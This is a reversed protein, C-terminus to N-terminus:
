WGANDMAEEAKRMASDWAERDKWGYDQANQWRVEPSMAWAWVRAFEELTKKESDDANNILNAWIGNNSHGYFGPGYNLRASDVEQKIAESLSIRESSIKTSTFQTFQPLSHIVSIANKSRESLGSKYQERLHNIGQQLKTYTNQKSVQKGARDPHYTNSVRKFEQKRYYVEYSYELNCKSIFKNRKGCGKVMRAYLVNAWVEILQIDPDKLLKEIYALSLVEAFNM